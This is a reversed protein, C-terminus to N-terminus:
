RLGRNRTGSVVRAQRRGKFLLGVEAVVCAPVRVTELDAHMEIDHTVGHGLAHRCITPIWDARAEDVNPWRCGVGRCGWGLMHSMLFGVSSLLPVPNSYRRSLDKFNMPGCERVQQETLSGGTRRDYIDRLGEKGKITGMGAGMFMGTAAVVLSWMVFHKNQLVPLSKIVQHKPFKEVAKAQMGQCVIRTMPGHM